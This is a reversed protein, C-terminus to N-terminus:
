DEVGVFEVDERDFLDDWDLDGRRFLEQDLAALEGLSPNDGLRTKVQPDDPMADYYKTIDITIRIKKPRM